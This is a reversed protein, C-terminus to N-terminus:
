KGAKMALTHMKEELERAIEYHKQVVPATRAAFQRLEPDKGSKEQMELLDLTLAHDGLQGKVYAMDFEMGSLRSMGAMAARHYPDVDKPLAVGMRQAIQALENNAKTHDNIMMQAFDKAEANTARQKALQGMKIEALNGRAADMIFKRDMPQAATQMVEGMNEGINKGSVANLEASVSILLAASMAVHKIKVM